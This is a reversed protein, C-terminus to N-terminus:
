PIASDCPLSPSIDTTGTLFIQHATEYQQTFLHEGIMYFMLGLCIMGDADWPPM